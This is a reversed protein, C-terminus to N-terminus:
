AVPEPPDFFQLVVPDRGIDIATFTFIDGLVASRLAQSLARHGLRMLEGVVSHDHTLQELEGERVRYIRSDGVRALWADEGTTFLLAVVTTGMRALGPDALSEAHIRANAQQVLTELLAAPSEFAEETAAEFGQGIVEIALGSAVEGGQHGGMGDAVVLLQSGTAPHSFEGLSDQNVQRTRGVDSVSATSLEGPKWKM